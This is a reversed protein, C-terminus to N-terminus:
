EHEFTFETIEKFFPMGLEPHHAALGYMLSSFDVMPLRWARWDSNGPVFGPLITGYKLSYRNEPNQWRLYLDDAAIPLVPIFGAVIRPRVVREPNQRFNDVSYGKEPTTGPSVGWATRDGSRRIGTERDAVAQAATYSFFLEDRNLECMYFPFQVLFSPQTHAALLVRGGYVQLPLARLDPMIYERARDGKIQREYQQCFYALLIYENYMGIGRIKDPDTENAYKEMDEGTFYFKPHSPQARIVAKDWDISNWLADAEDKILPDDFANRAALVGSVLISTDITSSESNGKGTQANVFHEFLGSEHRDPQCTDNKGNLTRLIDLAKSAALPDRRLRHNIAHATLAIGCVATSAIKSFRDKKADFTCRTLEGPVYQATYFDIAAFFLPELEKRFDREKQLEIRHIRIPSKGSNRLTLEVSGDIAHSGFYHRFHYSGPPSVTAVNQRQIPRGRDNYFKDIRKESINLLEQKVSHDNLSVELGAKDDACFYTVWVQYAGAEPVRGEWSLGGTKLVVDGSHPDFTSDADILQFEALPLALDLSVEANSAVAGVSAFIGCLCSLIVRKKMNM